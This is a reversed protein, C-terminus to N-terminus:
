MDDTQQKEYDIHRDFLQMEKMFEDHGLYYYEEGVMWLPYQVSPLNTPKNM